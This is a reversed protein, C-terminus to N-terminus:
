SDDAVVDELFGQVVREASLEERDFLQFLAEPLGSWPAVAAERGQVSEDCRSADVVDRAVRGPLVQDV